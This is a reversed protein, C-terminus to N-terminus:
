GRLAARFTLNVLKRGGKKYSEYLESGASVDGEHWFLLRYLERGWAARGEMRRCCGTRSDARGGIGTVIRFHKEETRRGNQEGDSGESGGGPDLGGGLAADGEDLLHVILPSERADGAVVLDEAREGELGRARAADGDIFGCGLPCAGAIVLQEQVKVGGDADLLENVGGHAFAGKEDAGVGGADGGAEDGSDVGAMESTGLHGIPMPGDEVIARWVAVGGEGAGGDRCVGNLEVMGTGLREDGAGAPPEGGGNGLVRFIGGEM